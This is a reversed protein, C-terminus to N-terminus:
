KQKIKMLSNKHFYYLYSHKKKTKFLITNSHQWDFFDPKVTVNLLPMNIIFQSLQFWYRILGQPPLKPYTGTCFNRMILEWLSECAVWIFSVHTKLSNEHLSMHTEYSTKATMCSMHSITPFFHILNEHFVHPKCSFINKMSMNEYMLFIAFVWTSVTLFSNRIFFFLFNALFWSRVLLRQKM